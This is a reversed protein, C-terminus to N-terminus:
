VKFNVELKFLRVVPLEFIEEINKDKKLRSIIQAIRKKNRAVLTFWLGYESDRSYNHTVEPYFNIKRAAKDLHKPSVKVAVLTSVFGIKRPNISAAIRRILGKKKLFAIRRLILGEDINLEAAVAKWPRKILPLDKQLRNLIPKDAPNM